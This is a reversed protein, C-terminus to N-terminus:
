FRHLGAMNPLWYATTKRDYAIGTPFTLTGAGISVSWIGQYILSLSGSFGAIQFTFFDTRTLYWPHRFFRGSYLESAVGNSNIKFIKGSEGDGFFLQNAANIALSVTFM